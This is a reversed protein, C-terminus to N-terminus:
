PTKKDYLPYHTGQVPVVPYRPKGDDGKRVKSWEWMDILTGDCEPDACLVWEMGEDDEETRKETKPFAHECHLCWFFDSAKARTATPM